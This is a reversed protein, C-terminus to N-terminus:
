RQYTMEVMIFSLAIIFSLALTLLKVKNKNIVNIPDPPAPAVRNTAVNRIRASSANVITFPLLLGTFAM